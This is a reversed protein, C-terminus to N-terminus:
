RQSLKTPPRYFIHEGIKVTRVMKRMWRPKVSTNHYYLARDTLRRPRGDIMARALRGMREFAKRNGIKDSKGDCNYSFQCGNKRKEGQRVVGCITNPYRRSDVRNLIVEAVAVQGMFSEGRAEFYLAEALCYWQEDRRHDPVEPLSKATFGVSPRPMAAQAPAATRAEVVARGAVANLPTLAAITAETDQGNHAAIAENAADAAPGSNARETKIRALGAVRAFDTTESFASLASQEGGLADILAGHIPADKGRATDAFATGSLAAATLCTCVLVAGLRGTGARDRDFLM